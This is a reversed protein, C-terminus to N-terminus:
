STTVAISGVEADLQPEIMDLEIYAGLVVALAEFLAKASDRELTMSRNPMGMKTITISM